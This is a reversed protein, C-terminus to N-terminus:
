GPFRLAGCADKGEVHASLRDRAVIGRNQATPGSGGTESASRAPPPPFRRRSPRCALPFVRQRRAELNGGTGLDADIATLEIRDAGSVFDKIVDQVGRVGAHEAEAFVFRDGGGQARFGDSQGLAL